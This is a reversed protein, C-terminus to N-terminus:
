WVMGFVFVAFLILGVFFIINKTSDQIVGNRMEQVKVFVLWATLSGVFAILWAGFLNFGNILPKVEAGFFVVVALLVAMFSLYWVNTNERAGTYLLVSFVLTVAVVIALVVWQVIDSEIPIFDAIKQVGAMTASPVGKFFNLFDNCFVEQRIISFVSLGFFAVTIFVMYGILGSQFARYRAKIGREVNEKHEATAKSIDARQKELLAQQEQRYAEAQNMVEKHEQEERERRKGVEKKIAEEFDSVAKERQLLSNDKVSLEEERKTNQSERQELEEARAENQKQKENIENLIQEANSVQKLEQELENLLEKWKDAESQKLKLSAKLSSIEDAQERNRDELQDARSQEQEREQQAIELAKIYEALQKKDEANLNPQPQESQKAEYMQKLNM